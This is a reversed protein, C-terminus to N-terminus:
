KILKMLKDLKASAINSSLIIPLSIYFYLEYNACQCAFVSYLYFLCQSSKTCFAQQNFSEEIFLSLFKNRESNDFAQKPLPSPLACFCLEQWSVVLFYLHQTIGNFENMTQTSIRAQTLKYIKEREWPFCLWM